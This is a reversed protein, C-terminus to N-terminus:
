VLLFLNKITFSVSILKLEVIPIKGTRINSCKLWTKTQFIKTLTESVVADNEIPKVINKNERISRSGRLCLGISRLLSFIIKRKIWSSIISYPQKRKEVIREALKLNFQGCERGFGGNSTMVLPTFSGNEVQFIRENYQRKEENENITYFKSLPSNRYISAVPNFVRIDFLSKQGYCWFDRTSIDM